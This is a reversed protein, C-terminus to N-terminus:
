NSSFSYSRVTGEKNFMIHLRKQNQLGIVTYLYHYYTWSEYGSDFGKEVPEGFTTYVQSKTTVNPRIEEIPFTPFDRGFPLCGALFLFVFLFILKRM